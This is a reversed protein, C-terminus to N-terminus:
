DVNTKVCDIISNIKILFLTEFLIGGQPFRDVQNFCDSFVTSLHVRSRHDSLYAAIFDPLKGRLGMKLVSQKWAM